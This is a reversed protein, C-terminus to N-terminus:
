CADSRCGAIPGWARLLQRRHRNADSRANGVLTGVAEKRLFNSAAAYPTDLRPRSREPVPLARRDVKGNVTLPLSELEVFSSPIMYSPLQGALHRRIASVTPAPRGAPVFYAVLRKEGQRDDAAAVVAQEVEGIGALASEIEAVDITNGKIKVQFDKRGLHELCGDARMRGLDGTYYIREAANEPCPRFRQLTLEPQRWYGEALYRSRIAIEAAEGTAATRGDEALLLIDMDEVPWGIPLVSGNADMTHDVVYRSTIGTETSALGHVLVCEPSFHRRYLAADRPSGRDGELRIVRLSPFQRGTSCLRHFLTPVSHWVTPKHEIVWEALDSAAAEWPRFPCVAGGNLLACFINSVTGHFGPRQLLTLRDEAGMGLGNTYRLVNHLVNRHNNVVGKPEGTSGSTYFIYAPSSPSIDLRPSATNGRADLADVWVMQRGPGAVEGALQRNAQESIVLSAQSHEVM